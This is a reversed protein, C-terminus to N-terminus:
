GYKKIEDLIFSIMVGRNAEAREGKENIVIGGEAMDRGAHHIAVVKMDQNLVPSGSSGPKTQAKYFLWKDWVSVVENFNLSIQKESGDPHQIINVPDRVVPVADPAFQLYGWESVPTTNSSVDVKVRTFDLEKSTIFASVNLTYRYRTKSNGSVDEEFNFEIYADAAAEQNPLVHNNTFLYDGETLFGTGTSGDPLVIRCVSKAAKMAKELWSIKLLHSKDGLLKELVGDLEKEEPVQFNYAAIGNVMSNLELKRPIGDTIMILNFRIQAKTRNYNDFPILGRANDKENSKFRAKQLVIDNEIGIQLKEDLDELFQLAQEIEDEEILAKVNKLFSQQANQMTTLNQSSGGNHRYFCM